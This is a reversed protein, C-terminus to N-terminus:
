PEDIDSRKYWWDTVTFTILGNGDPETQGVVQSKPLWVETIRSLTPEVLYAKQTSHIIKGEFEVTADGPRYGM